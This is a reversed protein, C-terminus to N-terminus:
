GGSGDPRAISDASCDLLIISDTAPPNIYHPLALSAALAVIHAASCAPRDTATPSTESASDTSTTTTSTARRALLFTTHLALAFPIAASSSTPPRPSGDCCIARSQVCRGPVSSPALPFAGRSCLHRLIPRAPHRPCPRRPHRPRCTNRHVCPPCLFPHRSFSPRPRPPPLTQLLPTPPLSSCLPPGGSLSSLTCHHQRHQTSSSTSREPDPVSASAAQGKQSEAAEAGPRASSWGSGFPRTGACPGILSAAGRAEWALCSSSSSSPSRLPSLTFSRRPVPSPPPRHKKEIAM